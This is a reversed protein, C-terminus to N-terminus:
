GIAKAPVRWFKQFGRMPRFPVAVREALVWGYQESFHWPYEAHSRPSLVGTIRARGIIGGYQLERPHPIVPAGNFGEAKAGFWKAKEYQDPHETKSAHIYFVGGSERMIRPPPSWGRNEVNKPGYVMLWAWPQHCSLVWVYDEVVPAVLKLPQPEAM